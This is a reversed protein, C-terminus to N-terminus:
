EGWLQFIKLETGDSNIIAFGNEYTERKNGPEVTLWSTKFILLKKDNTKLRSLVSEKLIDHSYDDVKLKSFSNKTLTNFSFSISDILKWGNKNAYEILEIDTFIHNIKSKWVIERQGGWPGQDSSNTLILNKHFDTWFGAPTTKNCATVIVILCLIALIQKTTM